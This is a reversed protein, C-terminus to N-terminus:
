NFQDGLSDFYELLDDWDELDTVKDFGDSFQNVQNVYMVSSVGMYVSLILGIGGCVLGAIAMGNYKEKRVLAGIGLGVAPASFILGLFGFWCCCLMSIIGLIMSIIGMVPSKGLSVVLEPTPNEASQKVTFHASEDTNATDFSIKVDQDKYAQTQGVYEDQVPEDTIPEDFVQEDKYTNDIPTGCEACFKKGPILEAGCKECFVGM